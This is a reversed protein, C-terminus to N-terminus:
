TLTLSQFCTERRLTSAKLCTFDQKAKWLQLADRSYTGLTLLILLINMLKWSELDPRLAFIELNEITNEQILALWVILNLISNRRLSRHKTHTKLILKSSNLERRWRKRELIEEIRMTCPLWDRLTAVLSVLMTRLTMIEAELSGRMRRSWGIHLSSCLLLAVQCWRKWSNWSM